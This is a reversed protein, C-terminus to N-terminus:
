DKEYLRRIEKAYRELIAPRKPKLTFSLEGTQPTWHDATLFFDRVREHSRLSENLGDLLNEYHGRVLHNHIMYQPATWHIDQETCWQELLTFNPLLIAGVFPRGSGFVMCQSIFPSHKLHNEVLEPSVFLGRSTKFLSRARGTIKLFRSDEILGLDGTHLWGDSDITEATLEERKFYGMMVNPGKVLIEGLGERQENLPQIRVQVGPLPLGVTGLKHGGPEFRNFAVVPSAETLGYGERVVIGAAAFLRGLTENMAAAGVAIGKLRGGLRRRWSRFVLLRALLLQLYYGLATRGPRERQGIRVAWHVVRRVVAPRRGAQELVLAKMRELVRPVASFYHPRVLPLARELDQVGPLVHVSAGAALYVYLVTREFIHSYPLFSVVRDGPRIPLVALCAKINSVLNKHSLVVGKPLAQTGSTYIITAPDDEHIVARLAQLKEQQVPEAELLLDHWGPLDGTEPQLLVIRENFAAREEAPLIKELMARNEAILLAPAVERFIAELTPLHNAPHLPVVVVGIQQLALDCFIWPVSNNLALIVAREGRKLGRDLFGVSLKNIITVCDSSPFREWKRGNLQALASDLPHSSQQYTFLEFLRRFDM